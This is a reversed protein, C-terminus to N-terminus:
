YLEQTNLAHLVIDLSKLCKSLCLSPLSMVVFFFFAARARVRELM